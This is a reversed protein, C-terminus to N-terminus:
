IMSGRYVLLVHGVLTHLVMSCYPKQWLSIELADRGSLTRDSEKYATMHTSRFEQVSCAQHKQSTQASGARHM